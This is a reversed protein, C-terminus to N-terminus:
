GINVFSELRKKWTPSTILQKSVKSWSDDIYVEMTKRIMEKFMKNGVIQYTAGANKLGFPM